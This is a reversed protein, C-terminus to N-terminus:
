APTEDIPAAARAPPEQALRTMKTLWGPVARLWVILTRLRVALPGGVYGVGAAFALLAALLLVVRLERFSHASAFTCFAALFFYGLAIAHHAVNVGGIPRNFVVVLFANSRNGRLRAFAACFTLNQCFV